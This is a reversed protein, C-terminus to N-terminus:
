SGSRISALRSLIPRPPRALAALGRCDVTGSALDGAAFAVLCQAFQDAFPPGISAWHTPLGAPRDVILHALGRARLIENAIPARGGPDFIDGEFFFLAVRAVEIARSIDNQVIDNLVIEANTLSRELASEAGSEYYGARHFVRAGAVGNVRVKLEHFKGDKSSPARFGLVYVVNQAHLMKELDANVDNSNKFVEGGTPSALLHLADNSNIRSGNEDNQVRVGQIDVAHLVVDSGRLTRAMEELLTMTMSSGFRADTDVRWVNGSVTQLTDDQEDATARADRGRVLRPDFGESFLIIQKRGPLV